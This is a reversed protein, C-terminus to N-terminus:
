KPRENDRVDKKNKSKIRYISVSNKFVLFVIIHVKSTQGGGDWISVLEEEVMLKHERGKQTLANVTSTYSRLQSTIGKTIINTDNSPFGLCWVFTTLNEFVNCGLTQHWSSLASGDKAGKWFISRSSSLLNTFMTILNNLVIKNFIILYSNFCM